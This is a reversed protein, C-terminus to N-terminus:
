RAFGEIIMRNERDLLTQIKRPNNEAALQMALKRGQGLLARKITLIKQINKRESEEKNILQGLEKDLEMKERVARTQKIDAESEDRRARTKTPQKGEHEAFLKLQSRLFVPKGDLTAMLMGDKRWRRLTRTSKGIFAAADKESKIVEAEAISARSGNGKKKDDTKQRGDDMKEFEDLEALEARSLPQNNRVRTLLHLHRQKQAIEVAPLNM